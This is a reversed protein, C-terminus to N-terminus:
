YFEPDVEDQMYGTKQNLHIRFFLLAYELDFFKRSLRINKTLYDSFENCIELM